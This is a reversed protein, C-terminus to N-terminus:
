EITVAPHTNILNEVFERNRLVGNTLLYKRFQIVLIQATSQLATLVNPAPKRQLYVIASINKLRILDKVISQVPYRRQSPKKPHRSVSNNTCDHLISVKEESSKIYPEARQNPHCKSHFNLGSVVLSHQKIPRKFDMTNEKSKYIIFYNSCSAGRLIVIM